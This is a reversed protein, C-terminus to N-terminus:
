RYGFGFRSSIPWYVFSSKGIVNERPFDGWGRSDYSNLTNDGLVFYNHHGVLFERGLELGWVLAHGYYLNKRYDSILNGGTGSFSYIEEFGPTTDSLEKGNVVLVGLGATKFNPSGNVQYLPKLSLREDPLGVLRKIYYTNTERIREIGRTKFVVIDGRQPHAFNYTIRNVFLHDGAIVKLRIIDQGKTFNQVLLGGQGDSIRAREFLDDAPFWVTETQGNFVYEQKLNFLLFKTPPRVQQLIGDSPATVSFYSWGHFWYDWRQQFWGPIKLGAQNGSWKDPTVGYLTPQMSGTPIKFPQLFFTRIAMAVGIAVLLVEINERWTAHPYPKLFKNAADELASMEALLVPKAAGQGVASKLKAIAAELSTVATGPLIDQQAALLKTVHKHLAVADRVTGSILWRFIM